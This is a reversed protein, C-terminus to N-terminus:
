EASELRDRGTPRNPLIFNSPTLWEEHAAFDQSDFDIFGPACVNSFYREVGEKIRSRAGDRTMVIFYTERLFRPEGM